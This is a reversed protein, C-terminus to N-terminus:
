PRRSLAVLEAAAQGLRLLPGSYRELGAEETSLFRRGLRYAAFCLLGGAILLVLGFEIFARAVLTVAARIV